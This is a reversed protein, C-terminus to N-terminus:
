RNLEKDYVRVIKMRKNALSSTHKRLDLVIVTINDTSGRDLASRSIEEAGKVPTRGQRAADIVEGPSLVDWVGDCALVAVDNESGLVGEAIRPEASVYPKLCSDGLARSIALIGEVRPVGLTVVSGGLAEIRYREATADPKHDDTLVAAGQGTGIVVRSDGVNAALFREGIIYLQVVCTGAQVRRGVLHEDVALYAERLIEAEVRRERLPREGQRAWAHLFWPTLMEAAIQAPQRGGHGDYIEASFFFRDPDEYFAHEDEMTPRFGIEESIGWSIDM